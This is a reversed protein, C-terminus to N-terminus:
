NHGAVSEKKGTRETDGIRAAFLFRKYFAVAKIIKLVATLSSINQEACLLETAVVVTKM